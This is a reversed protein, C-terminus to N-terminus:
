IYASLRSGIADADPGQHSVVLIRRAKLIIKEIENFSDNKM